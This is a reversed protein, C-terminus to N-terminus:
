EDAFARQGDRAEVAMMADAESGPRPLQGRERQAQEEARGAGELRAFPLVEIDHEGGALHDAVLGAALREDLGGAARM